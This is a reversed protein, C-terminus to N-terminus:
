IPDEYAGYTTVTRVIKYQSPQELSRTTPVREEPQFFQEYQKELPQKVRKKVPTTKTPM